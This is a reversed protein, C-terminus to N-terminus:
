ASDLIRISRRRIFGAANIATGDFRQGNPVILTVADAHLRDVRIVLGHPLFHPDTSAPEEAHPKVKIFASHVSADPSRITQWLLSGLNIRARVDDFRLYVREQDIELREISIGYALTGRVNVFLLRVAGIKQPIRNAIFQLGSQTFAAFYIVATPVALAFATILVAVLIVRRRM